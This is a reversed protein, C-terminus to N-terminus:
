KRVHRQFFKVVMPTAEQPWEHGGPHLYTVLETDNTGPEMQAHGHTVTRSSDTQLLKRAYEVSLLQSQFPVLADKEGAIIFISKPIADLLLEGGQGSGSCFAAFKDGRMNWLVNTFRGGNSHGMAYVRNPDIKYEKQLQELVVDVFKVDRDDVMGRAKQWGSKKGEPDTKGEIGPLGQMYAVVAEPWLKHIQFKEASHRATRGHGHFVFVLPAGSEPASQSGAYIMAQREVGEVPFTRTETEKSAAALLLVLIGTNVIM